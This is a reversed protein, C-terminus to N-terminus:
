RKDNNQSDEGGGFLLYSIGGSLVVAGATILLKTGLSIESYDKSLMWLSLVAVVIMVPVTFTLQKKM